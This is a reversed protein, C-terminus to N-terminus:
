IDEILHPFCVLTLVDLFPFIFKVPYAFMPTQKIKCVIITRPIRLEGKKIHCMSYEVM